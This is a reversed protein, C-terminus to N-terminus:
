LKLKLFDLNTAIAPMFNLEDKEDPADEIILNLIYQVKKVKFAHQYYGLWFILKNCSMDLIVKHKKIWPKDFIILHQGLKTILM